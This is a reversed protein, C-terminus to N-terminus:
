LPWCTMKPAGANVPVNVQARSVTASWCITTGSSLSTAVSTVDIMPQATMVPAPAANFAACTRGPLETTMMPAPPTPRDTTCAHALRLAYGIMTTSRASSFSSNALFNPAVIPMLARLSSGTAFTRSNIPPSGVLPTSKAKSAMPMPWVM